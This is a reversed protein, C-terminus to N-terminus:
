MDDDEDDGPLDLDDEDEDEDENLDSFLPEDAEAPASRARRRSSALLSKIDRAPAGNQDAGCEPCTPTPRNLDYFKTGCQFCTFRQGLKTKDYM